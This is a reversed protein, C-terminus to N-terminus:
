FYGRGGLFLSLFSRGHFRQCRHASQTPSSRVSCLLSMSMGVASSPLRPRAYLGKRSRTRTGTGLCSTGSVGCREGGVATVAHVERPPCM